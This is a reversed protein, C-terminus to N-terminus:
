VSWGPEHSDFWGRCRDLGLVTVEPRPSGRWREVTMRYRNAVQRKGRVSVVNLGDEAYGIRRTVGNSAENDVHADTVASLADLHDFAFALVAERARRGWGLGQHRQGLWSGTSVERTLAYHRAKLEQIGIPAGDVVVALPCAWEDPSWAARQRWLYAMVSRARADPGVDTWPEGFPMVAPDHIGLRAEDALVAADDDSPYRLLLGQGTDVSLGFLPWEAEIGM